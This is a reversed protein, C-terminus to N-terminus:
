IISHFMRTIIFFIKDKKTELSVERPFYGRDTGKRMVTGDKSLPTSDECTTTNRYFISEKNFFLTSLTPM